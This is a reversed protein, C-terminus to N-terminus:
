SSQLRLNFVAFSNFLKSKLNVSTWLMSEWRDLDIPIPTLIIQTFTNMGKNTRRDRENTKEAHVNKVGELKKHNNSIANVARIEKNRKKKRHGVSM